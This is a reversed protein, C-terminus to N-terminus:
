DNTHGYFTTSEPMSDYSVSVSDSAAASELRSGKSTQGHQAMSGDVIAFKISSPAGLAM